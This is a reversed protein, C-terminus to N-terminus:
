TLMVQMYNRKRISFPPDSNAIRNILFIFSCIDEFRQSIIKGKVTLYFAFLVEAEFVNKEETRKRKKRYVLCQFLRFSFSFLIPYIM